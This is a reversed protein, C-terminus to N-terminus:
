IPAPATITPGTMTPSPDVMPAFTTSACFTGGPLMTVTGLGTILGSRYDGRGRPNGDFYCKSPARPSPDPSPIRGPL